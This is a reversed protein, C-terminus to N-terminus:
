IRQKRTIFYIKVSGLLDFTTPTNSAFYIDGNEDVISWTKVQRTPEEDPDLNDDYISLTVINNSQSTTVRIPKLLEEGEQVGKVDMISYQFNSNNTTFRLYFDKGKIKDPTTAFNENIFKNGIFFKDIQNPLPLFCWQYNLAFIENHKKYYALNRIEGIVTLKDEGLFRELLYPFAQCDVGKNKDEDSSNYFRITVKEKWGDNDTYLVATSRYGDNEDYTLRYGACLPDDYQMEFCVCNGAGYITMPLYFSYSNNADSQYFM